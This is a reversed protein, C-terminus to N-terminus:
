INGELDNKRKKYVGLRLVQKIEDVDRTLMFLQFALLLYAITMLWGYLNNM